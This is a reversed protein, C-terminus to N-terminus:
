EVPSLINIRPYLLYRDYTDGNNYQDAPAIFRISGGDFVTTDNDFITAQAPSPIWEKTIPDWNHTLSRDLEYRDAKFDIKNLQEGFQKQINYLIRGSQGPHVYAIVWAPTFGLVRGDSQKSTMWLPLVSSIQGIQDIVQNRMNILSNPYVTTILGNNIEVPYSLKVSKNVSQGLKNVQDDIIQSYIVEYLVNGNADTARATRIKGLILNKWYHNLSLSQAYADVTSSTLGYAHVYTVNKAVGFNPDDARYVLNVPIIDQNFILQNILARDEMPPMAKIYINEYPETYARVVRIKFRRYVSVANGVNSQDLRAIASAGTGDGGSITVKPPDIYGRGPNNVSISLLKGQAVTIKDVTARGAEGFTPSPAIEVTPIPYGEGPDTIIVETVRDVTLVAIGEARMGSLPMDFYVKPPTIYGSGQNTITVQTISGDVVTVYGAATVGGYIAPDTFRVRVPSYGSGNNLIEIRAVQYQLNETQPNYANVTFDFEMDFTTPHLTKADFTTTGQDVGFTNFSVKGVINGSSLLQLGQPLRSNSGSLLRYALPRGGINIAKVYLDSTAGNNITGLDSATVWTVETDVDGVVTIEYFYENSILIPDYYKYSRVAFQYTKELTGQDPIYGYFWGTTPDLRLGPPLRPEDEDKVISVAAYRVPDGDADIAQFKYAYFNDARVKGISGEPNLLIPVRPPVLDATLFTNDATMPAASGPMPLGFEDYDTTNTDARFQSSAYVFISFTRVNSNKGDTIAVTFQFNQSEAYSTFQWPYEDNITQDWGPTASDPGVLTEIIGDITGNRLLVLGPPLQGSVISIKVNDNPDPDTFEIKLNSVLSGDIYTGIRGAPTIFDPLAQGTITLTFTRDVLRDIVAAGNIIVETYARIAFKSTTDAAVDVPAGQINISSKPIGAIIGTKKIQMGAPLHGAILEFYVPNGDVDIASLPIQYFVGEPITGLNGSETIWQPQAM